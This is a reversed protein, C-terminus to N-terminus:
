RGTPSCTDAVAALSKAEIKPLDKEQVMQGSAPAPKSEAVGTVAVEHNVNKSLESSQVSGSIKYRQGKEDKDQPNMRANDLLFVTSGSGQILCGTLTVDTGKQTKDQPAQTAQASVLAVAVSLSAVLLILTRKM